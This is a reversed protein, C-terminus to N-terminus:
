AEPPLDQIVEDGIEVTVGAPISKLDLSGVSTDNDVDGIKIRAIIANGRRLMFISGTSVNKTSGANLIVFGYDKQYELVKALSPMSMVKHQLPSLPPPANTAEAAPPKIPPLNSVAGDQPLSGPIPSNDAPTLKGASQMALIQQEKLLMANQAAINTPGSGGPLRTGAAERRQYMELENRAGTAQSHSDWAIWGTVGLLTFTMFFALQTLKM